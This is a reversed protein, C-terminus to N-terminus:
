INTNYVFSGDSKQKMERAFGSGSNENPASYTREHMWDDRRQDTM